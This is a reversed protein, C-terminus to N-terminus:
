TYEKVYIRADEIVQIAKMYKQLNHDKESSNWPSICTDFFFSLDENTNIKSVLDQITANAQSKSFYKKQLASIKDCIEPQFTCLDSVKTKRVTEKAELYVTSDQTLLLSRDLVPTNECPLLSFGKKEYWSLGKDRFILNKRISIFQEKGQKDTYPIQADDYLYVKKLKFWPAIMELLEMGKTGSIAEGKEIKVLENLHGDESCRVHLFQRDEYGEALKVSEHLKIDIFQTAEKEELFMELPLAESEFPRQTQVTLAICLESEEDLSIYISKIENPDKMYTCIRNLRQSFTDKAKFKSILEKQIEDFHVWKVEHSNEIKSSKFEPEKSYFVEKRKLCPLSNM